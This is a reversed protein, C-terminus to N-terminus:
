IPSPIRGRKVNSDDRASSDHRAISDDGPAAVIRGAFPACERGRRHAATRRPNFEEPIERM